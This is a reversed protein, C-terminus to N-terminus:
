FDDDVTVMLLILGVSRFVCDDFVIHTDPQVVWYEAM